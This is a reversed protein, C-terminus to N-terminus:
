RWPDNSNKLNESKVKTNQPTNSFKNASHLESEVETTESPTPREMREKERNLSQRGESTPGLRQAGRNRDQQDRERQSASYDTALRKARERKETPDLAM